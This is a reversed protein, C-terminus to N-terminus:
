KCFCFKKLDFDDICASQNGYVNIRSVDGIVDCQVSTKNLTVRVTAEFLANGPVTEFLVQIDETSVKRRKEIATQSNEVIKNGKSGLIIDDSEYLRMAEKIQFISLEECLNDFDYLLSKIKRLVEFTANVVFDTNNQLREQQLCTCWHSLIGATKCTRNIPVERFWSVGRSSTNILNFSDNFFLIDKLTEYVDFPSTLRNQNVTLGNSIHPHSDRLWKPIIVYMFPLREELKGIYTERIQGYRLGHDSFFFVVTNRILDNDYLRKFFRSFLDDVASGGNANDHTLASLFMFSFYSNNRYTSVFDYNYNLIIEAELRDKFCTRHRYRFKKHKAMALSLPRYYHEAPPINFGKKIYNFTSTEPWDEAFFTRYGRKFYQKWIFDFEDFTKNKNWPIEDLFKGLTLPLMNVFTNDAVKNYGMIEFAALKDKIFDRTKNMNRIFALRSVSDLGILMVNLPRTINNERTHKRWRHRSMSYLDTNSQAFAHFNTYISENKANYCEVRVFEDEVKTSNTFPDSENMYTMFNKHTPLFHPRYIPTYTCYQLANSYPSLRVATRNIILYFGSQYVLSANRDCVAPGLRNYRLKSHFPNFDPIRCFPTNVVYSKSLNKNKNIESQRFILKDLKRHVAPESKLSSKVSGQQFDKSNKVAHQSIKHTSFNEQSDIKLTLRRNLQSITGYVIFLLVVAVPVSRQFISASM